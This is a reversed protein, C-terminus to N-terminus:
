SSSTPNFFVGITCTSSFHWEMKYYYLTYNTGDLLEYVDCQEIENMIEPCQQWELAPSCSYSLINGDQDMVMDSEYSPNPHFKQIKNCHLLFLRFVLAVDLEIIYKETTVSFYIM